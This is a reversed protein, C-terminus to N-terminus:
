LHDCDHRLMDIPLLGAPTPAHLSREKWTGLARNRNRYALKFAERMAGQFGELMMVAVDQILDDRIEPEVRPASKRIQEYLDRGWVKPPVPDLQRSGQRAWAIGLVKKREKIAFRSRGPLRDEAEGIGKALRLIADEAPTWFNLTVREAPDWHGAAEMIWHLTATKRGAPGSLSYRITGSPGACASLIRGTKGVVVGLSSVSQDYGPVAAWTEATM